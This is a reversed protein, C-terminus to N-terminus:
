KPHELWRVSSVVEVVQEFLREDDLMKLIERGSKGVAEKAMDVLKEAAAFEQDSLYPRARPLAQRLEKYHEETFRTKPDNVQVAARRAEEIYSGYLDRAYARDSESVQASRARELIRPENLFYLDVAWRGILTQSLYKQRFEQLLAVDVDLDEGLFEAAAAASPCVCHDEDGGDGGQCVISGSDGGDSMWATTIQGDFTVVGMDYQVDVTADIEKVTSTTYETTRGVKEVDMGIEAVVTSGPGALFEIDLQGLVEDIPNMITRNCSGAFLLGVAPHDPNPVPMLNNKMEDIVYARDIVEAIAGDVTNGAPNITVFRKLKAIDDGPSAGGDVTGSQIIADGISAANEDALVHNNSLICLSGDTNDVVLCGLTGATINPHGISIGSPAPRETATFSQPYFPGTQVVDVEVYDRGSYVRKPLLRSPPIFQGPIKRMVYVVLAYDDTVEGRVIRRGFAAGVVNPDRRFRPLYEKKLARTLIRAKLFREDM